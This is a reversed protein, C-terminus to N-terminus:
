SQGLRNAPGEDPTDPAELAEPSEAAVHDPGVLEARQRELWNAILKGDPDVQEGPTLISGLVALLGGLVIGAFTIADPPPSGTVLLCGFYLCGLITLLVVLRKIWSHM